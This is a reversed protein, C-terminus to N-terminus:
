KGFQAFNAQLNGFFDQAQQQFEQVPAAPAFAPAPAPAPAPAQPPIQYDPVQMGAGRAADVGADIWKHPNLWEVGTNLANAVTDHIVPLNQPITEPRQTMEAFVDPLKQLDTMDQLDQVRDPTMAGNIAGSALGMNGTQSEAYVALADSARGVDTYRIPEGLETRPLAENFFNDLEPVIPMGNVEMLQSLPHNMQSPSGMVEYKVGDKEYSYLLVGDVTHGPSIAMIGTFAASQGASNGFVDNIHTRITVNGKPIPQDIEFGFADLLPNVMGVAGNNSMGREGSPGGILVVEMNDPLRGGNADAIQNLETLGAQTSQSFLVVRVPQGGADGIADGLRDGGEQDSTKMDMGEGPLGMQSSWNIPVVEEGPNIYGARELNAVHGSEVALGQTHGGMILVKPALSHEVATTNIANAALDHEGGGGVTVTRNPLVFDAFDTSATDIVETIAPMYRSVAAAGMALVLPSAREQIKLTNRRIAKYRGRLFSDDESVAFKENLEEQHAAREDMTKTGPLASIVRANIYAFKGDFNKAAKLAHLGFRRLGTKETAVEQAAEDLEEPAEEVVKQRTVPAVEKNTAAIAVNALLHPYSDGFVEQELRAIEDNIDFQREFDSMNISSDTGSIEGVPLQQHLPNDLVPTSENKMISVMNGCMEM